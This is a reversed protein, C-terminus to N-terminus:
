KYYYWRSGLKVAYDTRTVLQTGDAYITLKLRAFAAVDSADAVSFPRRLFYGPIEAEAFMGPRTVASGDGAFTLRHFGPVFEENKILTFVGKKM